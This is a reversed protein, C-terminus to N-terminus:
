PTLQGVAVGQEGAGSHLAMPASSPQEQVPLFSLVLRVQLQTEVLSMQHFHRAKSKNDSNHENPQYTALPSSPAGFPCASASERKIILCYAILMMGTDSQAANKM